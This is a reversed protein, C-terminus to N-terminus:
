PNRSADKDKGTARERELQGKGPTPFHAHVYTKVHPAWFLDFPMSYAAGLVFRFAHFVSTVKLFGM